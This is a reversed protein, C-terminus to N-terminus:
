IFRRFLSWAIDVIVHAIDACVVGLVAYLAKESRFINELFDVSIFNIFLGGLEKDILSLAGLLIFYLLISVVALYVLRILSGIVPVHSLGRHSSLSQYPIWFCRLFGWRRSPRSHPLDIDPSLFFTGVIYGACFPLYFEAPLFYLFAPLMTLNVLEHTKGLAM